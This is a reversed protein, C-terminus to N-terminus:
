RMTILDGHGSESTRARATNGPFQSGACYGRLPRGRRTACRPPRDLRIGPPLAAASPIRRVLQQRRSLLWGRGVDKLVAVRPGAGEAGDVDAFFVRGKNSVVGDILPEGFQVVSEVDEIPEGVVVLKFDEFVGMGLEVLDVWERFAGAACGPREHRGDGGAVVDCDPPSIFMLCQM